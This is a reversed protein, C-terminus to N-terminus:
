QKGLLRYIGGRVNAPMINNRVAQSVEADTGIFKALDGDSIDIKHKLRCGRCGGVLIAKRVCFGVGMNRSETFKDFHSQLKGIPFPASHQRKSQDEQRRLEYDTKRKKGKERVEREAGAKAKREAAATAAAATHSFAWKCDAGWKCTGTKKWRNCVGIVTGSGAGDAGTGANAGRAESGGSPGTAFIKGMADNAWFDGQDMDLTNVKELVLTSLKNKVMSYQFNIDADINAMVLCEEVARPFSSIPDQEFSAARRRNLVDVFHRKISKAIVNRVIGMAGGPFVQCMNNHLSINEVLSCLNSQFNSGLRDGLVGGAFSAFGALGQLVMTPHTKSDFEGHKYRNAVQELGSFLHLENSLVDLFKDPDLIKKVMDAAEEKKWIRRLSPDFRQADLHENFGCIAQDVLTEFVDIAAQGSKKRAASLEKNGKDEKSVATCSWAADLAELVMLRQDLPPGEGAMNIAHFAKVIRRGREGGERVASQLQTIVDGWLPLKLTEQLRTLSQLTGNVKAMSFIDGEPSSPPVETEPNGRGPPRMTKNMDKDSRDTRSKMRAMFGDTMARIFDNVEFAFDPKKTARRLNRVIDRVYGLCAVLNDQDRQTMDDWFTKRLAAKDELTVFFHGDNSVFINALEEQQEITLGSGEFLGSDGQKLQAPDVTAQVAACLLRFTRGGQDEQQEAQAANEDERQDNQQQAGFVPSPGRPAERPGQGGGAAQTDTDTSM